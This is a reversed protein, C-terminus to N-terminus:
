PKGLKLVIGSTTPPCAREVGVVGFELQRAQIHAVQWVSDLLIQQPLLKLWQGQPTVVWGHRSGAEGITGKLQWDAPSIVPLVCSIASPLQFPDRQPEALVPISFMLWLWYSKSM